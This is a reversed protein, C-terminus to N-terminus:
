NDLNKLLVPVVARRLGFPDHFSFLDLGESATPEVPLADRRDAECIRAV